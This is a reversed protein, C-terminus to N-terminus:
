PAPVRANLEDFWNIVINLYMQTDDAAVDTIMLFRQADSTVDYRANGTTDALYSGEFLLTPSEREFSTDTTSVPVAYMSTGSRYFLERGDRSWRPEFGGASSVLRAVGGAVRRVYVDQRGTENSSYALWQGDSSFQPQREDAPTRAWPQTTPEADLSLLWIDSSLNIESFALTHGDPAWARPVQARDRALLLEETGDGDSFRQFIDWTTGEQNSAFTVHRGSPTWIPGRVSGEVVLQEFVGRSIDFIGVRQPAFSALIRQQDPSISVHAYPLTPAPLVTTQGTDRDVWVLRREADAVDGGAYVLVGAPSFAFHQVAGGLDDIVTTASGTLQLRGQDFPAAILRGEQVYLLHGTPSYTAFDAVEVLRRREGTVLSQVWIRSDDSTTGEAKFLVAEGGPLLQPQRHSTEGLTTDLQTVPEPVGGDESVRSLAARSPAAFVIMGNEGWSGGRSGPADCLTIPSGGTVSVKKLTGEVFDFFGVWQSDPSFFPHGGVAGPVARGVDDALHRVYLQGDFGGRPGESGYAIWQGDDSIAINKANLSMPIRTAPATSLLLRMTRSSPSAPTLAWVALALTAAVVLSSLLWGATSPSASPRESPAPDRTQVRREELELGVDGLDRWRRGHDKRLLRRVMKVLWAPAARELARWDPQQGLIAAVVDSVTEGDFPPRGTLMEFLVCGFSWIDTRKDLPKGRAQEPSMYAATGLIVGQHTGGVTATVTPSQSLEPAAADGALAKAGLLPPRTM